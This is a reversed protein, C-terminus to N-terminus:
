EVKEYIEPGFTEGLYDMENNMLEHITKNIGIEKTHKLGVNILYRIAASDTIEKELGMNSMIKHAMDIFTKIKDAFTNYASFAMVKAHKM